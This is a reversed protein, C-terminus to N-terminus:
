FRARFDEHNKIATINRPPPDLGKGGSDVAGKAQLGGGAVYAGCGRDGMTRLFRVPAREAPRGHNLMICYIQIAEELVHSFGATSYAQM